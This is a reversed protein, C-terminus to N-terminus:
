CPPMGHEALFANTYRIDTTVEPGLWSPRVFDEDAATLEIEALWLGRHADHFEDVDWVHDGIRVKFRTKALRFKTLPLLSRADDAPIPYEFEQRVLDGRGKITLFAQKGDVLRVRVWPDRALYGQVFLSGFGEIPVWKPEAVLFRREIEVGM